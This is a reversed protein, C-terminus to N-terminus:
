TKPKPLGTVPKGIAKQIQRLLSDFKARQAPNGLDPYLAAVQTVDSESRNLIKTDKAARGWLFRCLAVHYRADFFVEAFKKDRSTLQSIKGWGWIVPKNDAGPRAGNLAAEYARVAVKPQLEAAWKEYATAAEVQADLMTPKEQLIKEYSDIADRYQGLLRQSRALQFRVSLPVQQSAKELRKSTAVATKLLEAAQGTAKSDNPAMAAEGLQVLTQMIWELTAPDKSSEAIRSLIVRFAEILKAKKAEPATELEEELGRAMGVYIQNLRQQGEAGSFSRQLKEMAATARSLLADPDGGESTMREVITSLETAALDGRFADDDAALAEALKIPGYKPDDLTALARKSDGQRLYVKALVLAAQMGEAEAREGAIGDIGSRLANEAKALLASAEEAHKAQRAAIFANWLLRGLLRDFTAREAGEPMKDILTRAQDWDDRRLALRIMIGQAASAQPDGPWAETLFNGFLEIQEVLNGNSEEPVESLLKQFSRLALLGGEMGIQTGPSTRALFSGVVVADRYREEQYLLYALIQRAQNLSERDTESHIMTIGRQLIQIAILRADRIQKAFEQRQSQMESSDGGQQSLITLAQQANESIELLKKASDLADELSKPDEAKPMEVDDVEIGLGRLLEASEAAHNGPLKQIDNLLQRGESEATKREASKTNATDDAKVLYAKALDLKLQLVSPSKKEDMRLDALMAKGRGIAPDYDPPSKALAIQILGSTAQFRADRLPDLDPKELLRMFSDTAAQDDGIAQQSQGLNLLAIAGTVFGDYNDSLDKFEAIAEELLTKGDTAPDSYTLAALRRAEGANLKADLFDGRYQTRLAAAQPDANADIKQGQMEKLKGRLNEVITDFTQSAAIFSDRALSKKPDSAGSLLLQNARVLQLKGLQLRAESVRPHTEQKLFDALSTEASAFFQDRDEVSRAAVAADIYTQAKELDIAERLTESVGPYQSPFQDIRDLYTIATDFYGAARLYKLFDEAPEGEASASQAFLVFLLVIGLSWRAPMWCPVHLAFTSFPRLM